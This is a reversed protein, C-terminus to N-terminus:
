ERGASALAQWRYPMVEHPHEGPMDLVGEDGDANPNLRSEGYAAGDMSERLDM